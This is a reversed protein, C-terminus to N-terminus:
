LLPFTCFVEYFKVVGSFDGTPRQYVRLSCFFHPETQSISDNEITKVGENDRGYTSSLTPNPKLIYLSGTTNVLVPRIDLSNAHCFPSFISM